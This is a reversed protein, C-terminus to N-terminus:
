IHYLQGKVIHTQVACTQKYASKKLLYIPFSIPSKLCNSFAQLGNTTVNNPIIIETISDCDYFALDGITTVGNGIKIDKLVGFIM